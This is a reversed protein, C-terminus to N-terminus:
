EIHLAGPVHIGADAVGGHRHELLAHRGQLVAGPGDGRCGALGRQVQGHGRQHAGAGMDHRGRREIAARVIQQVVRQPAEADLGSEDIRAVDVGPAGGDAGLRPQQEALCQAVRAEVHEVDFGHRLDALVVLDRQQDVGGEGRGVQQAREVM